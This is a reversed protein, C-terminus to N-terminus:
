PSPRFGAEYLAGLDTGLWETPIQRNTGEAMVRDYVIRGAAAFQIALGSNNKYYVIGEGGSRVEVKGSVVDGLEVVQDRSIVGAELPELLETQDNDIVSEWDNVVVVTAKAYTAEDVETRKKNTSDSNAISIVLQGDELWDGDFVPEMATTCCCIVDAGRVVEEPGTAAIVEIGGGAAKRKAAVFEERHAANPSFVAVREFDRVSTIADFAAGAQKGTGFLGLTKVDDPAIREVALGSTAGVRMGSLQFEHMLALPEATEIDFLIVIGWCFPRPNEYLRRNNTASPPVIIQSGARVCAMGVSPVAGVHVNAFYRRTPDSHRAQYRARPLNVADGAAFDSFATAMSEICERMTLHRAVDEDTIIVTM